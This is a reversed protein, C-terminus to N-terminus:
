GQSNNAARKTELRTNVANVANTNNRIAASAKNVAETLQGVALTHADIASAILAADKSPKFQGIWWKVLDAALNAFFSGFGM